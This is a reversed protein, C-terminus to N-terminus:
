VWKKLDETGGGEEPSRETKTLTEKELTGELWENCGHCRVDDLKFVRIFTDGRTEQHVLRRKTAAATGCAGCMVPVVDEGERQPKIIRGDPVDQIRPKKAM